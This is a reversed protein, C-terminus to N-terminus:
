NLFVRNIEELNYYYNGMVRKYPILNSQRMKEITSYSCGLYEKLEKNKIIKKRSNDNMLTKLENIQTKLERSFDEFKEKTLIEM